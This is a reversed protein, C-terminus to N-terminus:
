LAAPLTGLNAWVRTAHLLLKTKTQRAPTLAEQFGRLWSPTEAPTYPQQYTGFGGSETPVQRMAPEGGTATFQSLNDAAPNLTKPMYDVGPAAGGHYSGSNREM